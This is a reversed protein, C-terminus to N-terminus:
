IRSGSLVVAHAGIRTGDGITVDDEIITYPGVHVGEGIVAKPSVVARSDIITSM